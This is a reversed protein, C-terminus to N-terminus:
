YAFLFTNMSFIATTNIDGFCLCFVKIAIMTINSTNNKTTSERLTNEDFGLSTGDAITKLLAFVTM